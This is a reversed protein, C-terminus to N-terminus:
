QKEGTRGCQPSHTHSQGVGHAVFRLILALEIKLSSSITDCFSAFTLDILNSQTNKVKM